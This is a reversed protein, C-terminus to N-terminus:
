TGAVANEFISRIADAGAIAMVGAAHDSHAHTVLVQALTAGGLARELDDLHQPEGVGADILTPM